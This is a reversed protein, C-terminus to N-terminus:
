RCCFPGLQSGMLVEVLSSRNIAGVGAGELAAM